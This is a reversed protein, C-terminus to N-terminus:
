RLATNFTLFSQNLVDFSAKDIHFEGYWVYEFKNTLLTFEDRYPSNELEGVYTQNTKEPQWFILQEDTLKKLTKLYLLRVASRYNGNKIATEIQEDFDIEHINELSEEYPVFVQKSKGMLVRFDVGALRMAFYILGAIVVAVITWKLFTGYSNGNFLKSVLSWFWIWFRDWLSLQPPAVDDYIFEKQKSREVIPDESFKRVSVTSSDKLALKKVAVKKVSDVKELANASYCCTLCCFLLFIIRLRM